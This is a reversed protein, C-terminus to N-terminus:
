NELCTATFIKYAEDNLVRQEAYCRQLEAEDGILHAHCVAHASQRASTVWQAQLPTLLGTLKQYLGSLRPSLAELCRRKNTGLKSGPFLILRSLATKPTFFGAAHLIEAQRCLDAISVERHWLIYGLVAEIGAGRILKAASLVAEPDLPKQWHRLINHDLNELGIFIRCLGAAKYRGMREELDPVKSLEQGRMELAFALKLGAEEIATCLDDLRQLDGFTDDVINFIPPYGVTKMAEALSTMEAVVDVIPRPCYHSLEPPLTPTGCFTCKGYCGRSTRLSVVPNLALNASLDRREPWPWAAPETALCATTEGRVFAVIQGEGEGPLVAVWAPFVLKARQPDATVYIGGVAVRCALGLRHILMLAEPVEDESMISLACTTPQYRQLDAALDEGTLAYRVGDFVQSEEGAASLRAQLYELGLPEWFEATGDDSYPRVLATAM